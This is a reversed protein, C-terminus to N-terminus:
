LKWIQNPDQGGNYAFVNPTDESIDKVNGRTALKLYQAKLDRPRVPNTNFESQLDPHLSLFYSIMGTVHPAAMSTGTMTRSGWLHSVSVIDEGPAYLDVCPGFNSHIERVDNKDTAGVVIADSNVSSSYCADMNENGAAVVIHIGADILANAADTIYTATLGSISLNLTSGRFGPIKAAVKKQHDKLAYEFGQAVRSTRVIGILTSVDVATINVKKAVGYTKSGITGAVHTGHGLIDGKNWPFELAAGYSARGEFEKKDVAIGTDLVYANVGKGGEDDYVYNSESPIERSSIRGLGWTADKQTVISAVELEEDEEVYKVLPNEQIQDLLQQDFHGAYGKVSAVEFFELQDDDGDPIADRKVAQDVNESIWEKDKQKDEASIDDNYIVVYRSPAPKAVRLLPARGNERKFFTTRKTQVNSVVGSEGNLPIVAAAAQTALLAPISLISFKM